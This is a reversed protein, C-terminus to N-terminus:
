PPPLPAPTQGGDERQEASPRRQYRRAAGGAGRVRRIGQRLDGVAWQLPSVLRGQLLGADRTGDGVPGLPELSLGAPGAVRLIHDETGRGVGGDSAGGSTSGGPHSYLM